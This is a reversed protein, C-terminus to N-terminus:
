PTLQSSHSIMQTSPFPFSVGGCVRVSNRSGDTGSVQSKKWIKSSWSEELTFTFLEAEQAVASVGHTRLVKSKTRADSTPLQLLIVSSYLIEAKESPLGLGQDRYTKLSSPSTTSLMRVPAPSTSAQMKGMGKWYHNGTWLVASDIIKVTKGMGWVTEVPFM